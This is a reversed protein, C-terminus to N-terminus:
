SHCNWQTQLVSYAENIEWIDQIRVEYQNYLLM